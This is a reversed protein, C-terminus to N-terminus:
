KISSIKKLLFEIEDESQTEIFPKPSIKLPPAECFKVSKPTSDNNGQSKLSKLSSHRSMLKKQKNPEIDSERNSKDEFAFSCSNNLFNPIKLRIASGTHDDIVDIPELLEPEQGVPEVSVQPVEDTAPVSSEEGNEVPLFVESENLEESKETYTQEATTSVDQPSLIEETNRSSEDCQANVDQDEESNPKPTTPTTVTTSHDLHVELATLFLLLQLLLLNSTM